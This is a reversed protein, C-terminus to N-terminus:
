QRYAHMHYLGKSVQKLGRQTLASCELYKVARIKSAMKLGQERKVPALGANSLQGIVEKDERLDIKTGSVVVAFCQIRKLVRRGPNLDLDPLKWSSQVLPCAILCLPDAQIRALSHCAMVSLNLPAQAQLPHQSYPYCITQRRTCTVVLSYDEWAGVQGPPPSCKLTAWFPQNYICLYFRTGSFGVTRVPCRFCVSV